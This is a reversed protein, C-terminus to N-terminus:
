RFASCVDEVIASGICDALVVVALLEAELVGVVSACCVEELFPLAALRLTAVLGVFRGLYVLRLTRVGFLGFITLLLSLSRM